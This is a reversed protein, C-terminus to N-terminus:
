FLGNDPYYFTAGIIKVLMAQYSDLQIFFTDRM